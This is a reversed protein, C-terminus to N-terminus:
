PAEESGKDPALLQAELTSVRRELDLLHQTMPNREAESNRAERRAKLRQAELDQLQAEVADEGRSRPMFTVPDLYLDDPGPEASPPRQSWPLDELYRPAPEPEPAEAPKDLIAHVREKARDLRESM